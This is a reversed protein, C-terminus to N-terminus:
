RTRPEKSGRRKKTNGNKNGTEIKKMTERFAIRPLTLENKLLYDKVEKKDLDSLSRLLWSIAKTILVDKESKLEEITAFALQRLRKDNIKRISLNQLVLSARRLSIIDSERFKKIMKQWEDWRDLVEQGTYSSQCIVDVEVWGKAGSLWTELQDFSIKARTDPKLFTIIKGGIVYEEFNDAAFLTSILAVLEDIELNNQDKVVERSIKVLDGTKAGLFRRNNGMYRQVFAQEENSMMKKPLQAIKHRVVKLTTDIDM